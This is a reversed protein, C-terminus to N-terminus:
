KWRVGEVKTNCEPCNSWNIFILSQQEKQLDENTMEFECGCYKCVFYYKIATPVGHKIIKKM